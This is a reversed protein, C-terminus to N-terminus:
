ILIQEDEAWNVEIHPICETIGNSVIDQTYKVLKEISFSNIKSLSIIPHVKIHYQFDEISFALSIPLIPLQLTQAIAAFGRKFPSLFYRYEHLYGFSDKGEPFIAIAQKDKLTEGIIDILTQTRNSGEGPIQISGWAQTIQALKAPRKGTIFRTKFGYNVLTNTIPYHRFSIPLLGQSPYDNATLDLRTILEQNELAVLYPTQIHNAVVLLNPIDSLDFNDPIIREVPTIVELDLCVQFYMQQLKTRNPLQKLNNIYFNELITKVEIRRNASKM